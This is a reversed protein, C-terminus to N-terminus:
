KITDMHKAQQIQHAETARANAKDKRHETTTEIAQYSGKDPNDESIHTKATQLINQFLPLRQAAKGFAQPLDEADKIDRYVKTAAGVFATADSIM